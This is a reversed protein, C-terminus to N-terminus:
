GVGSKKGDVPVMLLLSNSNTAIPPGVNVSAFNGFAVLILLPLM